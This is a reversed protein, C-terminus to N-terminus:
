RCSRRRKLVRAAMTEAAAKAEDLTACTGTVSLRKRRRIEPFMGVEWRETICWAWGDNWIQVWLAIRARLSFQHDDSGNWDSM